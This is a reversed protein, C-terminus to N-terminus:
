NKDIFSSKLSKELTLQVTNFDASPDSFISRILKAQTLINKTISEYYLKESGYVSKFEEQYGLGFLKFITILDQEANRQNGIKDNVMARFFLGTAKIFEPLPQNILEECSKLAEIDNDHILSTQIEGCYKAFIQLDKPSPEACNLGFQVSFCFFGIFLYKM